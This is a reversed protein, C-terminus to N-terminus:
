VCQQDERLSDAVANKLLSNAGIATIGATAASSTANKGGRSDTGTGTPHGRDDEDRATLNQDHRPSSHQM